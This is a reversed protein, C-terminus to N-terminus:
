AYPNLENIKNITTADLYGTDPIGCIRQEMKISERMGINIGRDILTGILEVNIINEYGYADWEARKYFDKMLPDLEPSWDGAGLGLEKAKAFIPEGPYNKQSIGGISFGGSDSPDDTILRGENKVIIPYILDFKSM